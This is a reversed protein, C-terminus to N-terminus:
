IPEEPAQKRRRFVAPAQAKASPTEEQRGIQKPIYWGKETMVKRQLRGEADLRQAESIKM